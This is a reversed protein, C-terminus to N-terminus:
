DTLKNIDDIIRECVNKAGYAERDEEPRIWSRELTIEADKLYFEVIQLIKEKSIKKM